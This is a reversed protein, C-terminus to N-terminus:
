SQDLTERVIEATEDYSKRFRLIELSAYDRRLQKEAASMRELIAGRRDRLIPRIEDLAHPDELAIMALDLLDRAKFEAGRHWVKKAIIETATEVEVSRGFIQETASPRMTLAESAIFDIEGEDFVLKLALQSESYDSTLAAATENLRPSVYGFYQPSPVFIDIDKSFRHEHRRMLVTGGGFTWPAFRTGALEVSDILQLARRFLTEWIKLRREDM